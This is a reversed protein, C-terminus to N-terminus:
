MLGRDMALRALDIVDGSEMCNFCHFRDSDKYVVFASENSGLHLPCSGRGTDGHWRLETLKGALLEIPVAAKINQFSPRVHNRRRKRRPRPDVYDHHRAWKEARSVAEDPEFGLTANLLAQYTVAEKWSEYFVSWYARNLVRASPEPGVFGGSEYIARHHEWDADAEPESDYHSDWLQRVNDPTEALPRRATQSKRKGPVCLIPSHM